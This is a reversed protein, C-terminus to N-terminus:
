REHRVPKTNDGPALWAVLDANTASSRIDANAGSIEAARTIWAIPFEPGANYLLVRNRTDLVAAAKFDGAKRLGPVFFRDIYEQDNDVGFLNLDAALNVGPGALARAFFSWIGGMGLGVLNVTHAGSRNQIYTLATLIDQVRNADDTQNFVTFARKTRNRPGKASGTQFADIGLVDGGRNLIQRVLGAPDQASGRVWSVGDTHVILTPAFSALPHPSRLYIAPVRDGKAARGLLLLEGGGLTERTESIVDAASPKVDL